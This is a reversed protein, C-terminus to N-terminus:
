AGAADSGAAAISSAVRSGALLLAKAADKAAYLARDAAKAVEEPAEGVAGAASGVSAAKLYEMVKAISDEVGFLDKEFFKYTEVGTDEDLDVGHSRAMNYVRSHALQTIHPTDIVRQFYDRFNGEWSSTNARRVHADLM